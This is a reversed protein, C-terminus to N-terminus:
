LARLTKSHGGQGNHLHQQAYQCLDLGPILFQQYRYPSYILILNAKSLGAGQLGQDGLAEAFLLILAIDKQLENDRYHEIEANVITLQHEQHRTRSLTTDSIDHSCVWNGLLGNLQVEAVSKNVDDACGADLVAHRGTM